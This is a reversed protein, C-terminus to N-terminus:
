NNIISKVLLKNHIKILNIINKMVSLFFRYVLKLLDNIFLLNM